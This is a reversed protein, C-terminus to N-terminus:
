PRGPASLLATVAEQVAVTLDNSAVTAAYPVGADDLYANADVHDHLDTFTRV